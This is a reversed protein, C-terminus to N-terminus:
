CLMPLSEKWCDADRTILRHLELLLKLINSAIIIGTINTIDNYDNMKPLLADENQFKQDSKGSKSM